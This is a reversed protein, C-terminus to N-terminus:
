NSKGNIGDLIKYGFVALASASSITPSNLLSMLTFYVIGSGIIGVFTTLANSKIQHLLTNGNKTHEPKPEEYDQTSSPALGSTRDERKPNDFFCLLNNILEPNDWEGLKRDAMEIRKDQAKNLLEIDFKGDLSKTENLRFLLRDKQNNRTEKFEICDALQNIKLCESYNGYPILM